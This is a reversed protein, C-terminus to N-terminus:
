SNPLAAMVARVPARAQVMRLVAVVRMVAVPAAVTVTCSVRVVSTGALKSLVTTSATRHRLMPAAMMMTMMSSMRMVKKLFLLLLPLLLLPLLLLLLHNHVKGALEAIWLLTPHSRLCGAGETVEFVRLGGAGEMEKPIMGRTMPLAVFRMRIGTMIKTQLTATNVMKLHTMM